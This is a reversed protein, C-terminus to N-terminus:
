RAFRIGLALCACKTAHADLLVANGAPTTLVAYKGVRKTTFRGSLVIARAQAAQDSPVPEAEVLPAGGAPM